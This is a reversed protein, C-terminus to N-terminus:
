TDMYGPKLSDLEMKDMYIKLFFYTGFVSFFKPKPSFLGLNIPFTQLLILLRSFIQIFYFVFCESLELALKTKEFDM